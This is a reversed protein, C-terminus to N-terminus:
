FLSLLLVRLPRRRVHAVSYASSEVICVRAINSELTGYSCANASVATEVSAFIKKYEKATAASLAKISIDCECGEADNSIKAVAEGIAQM